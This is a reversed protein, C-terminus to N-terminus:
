ATQEPGRLPRRHLRLSQVFLGLAAVLAVIVRTGWVVRAHDFRAQLDAPPPASNPEFGDSGALAFFLFAYAALVLCLV